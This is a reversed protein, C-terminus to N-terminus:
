SITLQEVVTSSWARYSDRTLPIRWEEWEPVGDAQKTVPLYDWFPISKAVIKYRSRAGVGDRITVVPTMDCKQTHESPDQLLIDRRRVRGSLFAVGLGFENFTELDGDEVLRLRRNVKKYARYKFWYTNTLRPTSLVFPVHLGADDGESPPVRIDRVWGLLFKVTRKLMYGQVASWRNLRNILSYVEQPTELSRVYVGRVNHGSFYDHGCSERFPGTNFSKGVNVVFGLRSLMSCVFNYAERRVVIDDGYVGFQTVPCNSPFGMLDYCARVVCAFIVTQLPFTFGNGMTSIMRLAVESGDPLVATESRSAMLVTKLFSHRLVKRMLQLGISDSASVLDITGFSGDTSGIRALRRNYDPQDKLKIGFSKGLRYELFAGAAKQVLMNLSAETCCTRSIEASKPAFFLKGGSVRVNGFRQFRLMEADAWLGTESLAGRYLTLLYDNTYSLRSEFLKTVYCRSDAKQASGPGVDMNERIWTLDFNECSESAGLTKNLHDCFYDYFCSEPEGSAEFDWNSEPLSDNIAKFKILAAIDADGTKGLPCLKKYFSSALSHKAVDIPEMDSLYPAKEVFSLELDQLLIDFLGAYDRM